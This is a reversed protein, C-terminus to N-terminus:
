KIRELLAIKEEFSKLSEESIELDNIAELRAVKAAELAYQTGQDAIKVLREGSRLVTGLAEKVTGFLSIEKSM